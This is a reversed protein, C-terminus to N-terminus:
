LFKNEKNEKNAMMANVTSRMFAWRTDFETIHDEITTYRDDFPFNFVRQVVTELDTVTKGEYQNKLALYADHSNDCLEIKSLPETEGNKEITLLAFRNTGEERAIGKVIEWYTNREGYSLDFMFFINEM